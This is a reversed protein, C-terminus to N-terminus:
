APTAVRRCACCHGERKSARRRCDSLPIPAWRTSELSQAEGTARVAWSKSGSPQVILYLGALLGDPIERRKDPNAKAKEVGAATLAKAM